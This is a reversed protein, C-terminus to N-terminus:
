EDFILELYNFLNRNSDIFFINKPAITQSSHKNLVWQLININIISPVTYMKEFQCYAEIVYEDMIM